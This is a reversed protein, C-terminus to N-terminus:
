LLHRLFMTKVLALFCIELPRRHRFTGALFQGKGRRKKNPRNPKSPTKVFDQLKYEEHTDLIAGVSDIVQREEFVQFRNKLIVPAPAFSGVFGATTMSRLGPPM